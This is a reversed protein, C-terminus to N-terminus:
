REIKRYDHNPDVLYYYLPSDPLGRYTREDAVMLETKQIKIFAWDDIVRAVFHHYQQDSGQYGVWRVMSHYKAYWNATESRDMPTTSCAPAIAILTTM